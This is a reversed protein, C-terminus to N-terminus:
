RAATAQSHDNPVSRVRKIYKEVVQIQKEVITLENELAHLRALLQTGKDGEAEVLQVEQDAMGCLLENRRFELERKQINLPSAASVIGQREVLWKALTQRIPLEAEPPGIVVLSNSEADVVAGIIEPENRDQHLLMFAEVTEVTVPMDEIQFRFRRVEHNFISMPEDVVATSEVTAPLIEQSLSTKAVISSLFLVGVATSLRVVASM